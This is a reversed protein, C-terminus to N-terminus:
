QNKIIIKFACRVTASVSSTPGFYIGNPNTFFVRGNSNIQGLIHSPNNDLIRNLLASSANPQNFTVTAKSGLNFTDWNVIAKPSTQNVVMTAAVNTQTQTISVSGSGVKPGTPLQNVPPVATAAVAGVSLELILALALFKAVSNKFYQLNMTTLYKLFAIFCEVV